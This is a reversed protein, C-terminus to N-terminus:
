ISSFLEFTHRVSLAMEGKRQKATVFLLIEEFDPEKADGRANRGITTEYDRLKAEGKRQKATDNNRLKTTKSRKKATECREEATESNGVDNNRM